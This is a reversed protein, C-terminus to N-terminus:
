ASVEGRSPIPPRARLGVLLRNHTDRLSARFGEPDRAAFVSHVFMRGARRDVAIVLTDPTITILAILLTVETESLEDIGFGVIAPEAQRGPTLIFAIVRFTTVVFQGIFWGIFGFMRLPLTWPSGWVSGTM